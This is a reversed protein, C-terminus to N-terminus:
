DNDELMSLDLTPISPAQETGSFGNSVYFSYVTRWEYLAAYYVTSVLALMAKLVEPIAEGDKGLHSPFSDWHKAVFSDAGSFFKDQIVSLIVSSHYPRSRLPSGILINGKTQRPFIYNFDNLQNEIISAIVAPSSQTDVALMVAAVCQEKIEARSISIRVRPLISIKLFYDHDILIHNHIEMASPLRSTATILAQRVFTTTLLANHLVTSTDSIAKQMIQNQAKLGLQGSSSFRLETKVPWHPGVTHTQSAPSPLTAQHGESKWHTVISTATFESEPVQPGNFLTQTVQHGALHGPKGRHDESQVHKGFLREFDEHIAQCSESDSAAVQHNDKSHAPAAQQAKSHVSTSSKHDSVTHHQIISDKIAMKQSLRVNQTLQVLYDSAEDESSMGSNETAMMSDDSSSLKAEILTEAPPPIRNDENDTLELNPPGISTLGSSRVQKAPKPLTSTTGEEADSTSSEKASLPQKGLSVKGNRPKVSSMLADAPPAVPTTVPAQEANPLWRQARPLM